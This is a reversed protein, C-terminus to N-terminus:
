SVLELLLLLLSLFSSSAGQPVADRGQEPVARRGGQGLRRQVGPVRVRARGDRRLQPLRPLREGPVVVPGLRLQLDALLRHADPSRASSRPSHSPPRRSASFPALALRLSPLRPLPFPSFSVLSLSSAGGGRLGLGARWQLGDRRRERHGQARQRADGRRRERARGGVRRRAPCVPRARRRLRPPAVDALLHRALHAAAVLAPPSPDHAARALVLDLQAPSPLLQRADLPALGSTSSHTLRQKVSVLM